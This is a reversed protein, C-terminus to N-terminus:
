PLCNSLNNILMLDLKLICGSVPTDFAGVPVHYFSVNKVTRVNDDKELRLLFKRGLILMDEIILQMKDTNWDCEGKNAFFLSISYESQVYSPPFEKSRIPEDLYAAPFVDNDAEMNQFAMEGHYFSPYVLVPTSKYVLTDVISKVFTVITM